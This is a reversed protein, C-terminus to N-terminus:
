KTSILTLLAHHVKQEVVVEGGMVVLQDVSSNMYSSVEKPVISKEVLITPMGLKGGYPAAALADAFTRGNVIIAGTSHPFFKKGVETATGFRSTGQIRHVKIDMSLLAQEVQDSIALNGGIITVEEVGLSGLAERTTAHLRKETTLLIPIGEKAAASGVALADPFNEGSVLFVHKAKGTEFVVETAIKAATEYRSVGYIRQIDKYGANVLDKEVQDSVAVTGGLLIVKKVQLRGLERLTEVSLKGRTTLLIPAGYKAAYPAAALADPYQEGSVLVAVDARQYMASSIEVATQYRSIGALVKLEKPSLVPQSPSQARVQVLIEKHFDGDETVVYVKTSGIGHAEVVGNKVTAVRHNDSIFRIGKHSANAPFVEVELNKKGGVQMSLQSTQVRLGQVPVGQLLNVSIIKEKGTAYPEKSLAYSFTGDKYLFGYPQGEENGVLSLETRPNSGDLKISYLGNPGNFYLRGGVAYLRSFSGTYSGGKLNPWRTPIGYIVQHNDERPNWQVIKGQRDVYYYDEGVRAFSTSLYRWFANDYQQNEAKVPASWGRHSINAIEQDSLLFYLQRTYGLTDYVPDNWTTDVHYWDGDLAVMNWGHNMDRSVIYHTPIGLVDRMLYEYARGYGNCVAKRHVLAGYATYVERPLTGSLYNDYDYAVHQVLHNQVVLAIELDSMWPKVLAKVKDREVHLQKIMGDYQTKTLTYSPVFFTKGGNNRLAGYSVHFMEANTSLVYQLTDWFANASSNYKTVDIERTMAKMHMVLYKALQENVGEISQIETLASADHYYSAKSEEIWPAETEVPNITRSQEQLAHADQGKMTPMSSLQMSILITIILGIKQFKKFRM